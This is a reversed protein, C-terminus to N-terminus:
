FRWAVGGGPPSPPASRSDMNYAHFGFFVVEDTELDTALALLQM